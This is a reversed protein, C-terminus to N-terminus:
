SGGPNQRQELELRGNRVEARPLGGRELEADSQAELRDYFARGFAFVSPDGSQAWEFIADEAKAFRGRAEYYAALRSLLSAPRAGKELRAALGDVRDLLEETVFTRGTLIGEVLLGLALTHSCWAEDNREQLLLIEGQERILEGVAMLLGSAAQEHKACLALWEELEAPTGGDDQRLRRLAEDVEKLALEYEQRHRLSVVRLLVQTMETILRMIYDRRIM